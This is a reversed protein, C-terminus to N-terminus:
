AYCSLLGHDEVTIGLTTTAERYAHGAVNCVGCYGTVEYFVPDCVASAPSLPLLSAAGFAAAALALTKRM